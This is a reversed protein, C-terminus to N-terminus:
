EPEELPPVPQPHGPQPLRSRDRSVAFSPPPLRVRSAVHVERYMTGCMMKRVVDSWRTGQGGRDEMETWSLKSRWIFVAYHIRLFRPYAKQEYHFAEPHYQTKKTCFSVGPINAVEEEDGNVFVQQEPEELPPVPSPIDLSLSGPVVSPSLHHSFDYEQRM